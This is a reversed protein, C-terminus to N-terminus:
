ILIGGFSREEEEYREKTQNMAYSSLIYKNGINYKETVISDTIEFVEGQSWRTCDVACAGPTVIAIHLSSPSPHHHKKLPM